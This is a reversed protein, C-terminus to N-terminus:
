GADTIDQLDGFVGQGMVSVQGVDRWLEKGQRFCGVDDASLVIIVAGVASSVAVCCISWRGRVPWWRLMMERTTMPLMESNKSMNRMPNTTDKSVFGQFRVPTSAPMMRAQEPRPVTMPAMMHPRRASLIPRRLEKKQHTSSNTTKVPTETKVGSRPQTIRARSRMRTPMPTPPRLMVEIGYTWSNTGALCRPRSAPRADTNM